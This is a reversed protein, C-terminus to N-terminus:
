AMFGQLRAARELHCPSTGWLGAATDHERCLLRLRRDLDRQADRLKDREAFLAAARTLVEAQATTTRIAPHTM